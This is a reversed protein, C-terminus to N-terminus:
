FPLANCKRKFPIFGDDDAPDCLEKMLNKAEEKTLKEGLNCLLKWLDNGQMTDDNNKDYLKLIEVYDHFGGKPAEKAVKYMPFFAELSVTAEGEAGKGGLEEICKLTPNLNCARLVDGVYFADITGNGKFDYVDFAFNM